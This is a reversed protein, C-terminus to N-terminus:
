RTDGDFRVTSEGVELRAAMRLAPGEADVESVSVSNPETELRARYSLRPWILRIIERVLPVCAAAAVLGGLIWVWLQLGDEDPLKPPISDNPNGGPPGALIEGDSVDVRVETGAAVRTGAVPSQTLVVGAPPAGPVKVTEVKFQGLKGQADALSLKVVDPVEIGSSVTLRVTDGRAVVDGGKPAQVIVTEPAREDESPTAEVVLGAREIEETAAGVAKGEVGPVVVRSGDSVGIEVASGGAVRTGPEPTQSIVEGRTAQSPVSREQVEFRVLGTRADGVTRGVVKPVPIGTSVSLKVASGRRAADGAKPEQRVVTDPASVHEEETPEALLGVQELAVRAADISGGEVGPVRVLSGDSVELVVEAGRPLRAPGAPRQDTIEGQPRESAVQTVDVAFPRLATRAAGLRQGVLNPLDILRAVAVWVTVGSGRAVESEAAPDQRLVTGAPQENPSEEVGMELGRDQLTAAAAELSQGKLNPVVVLTGDSVVFAIECFRGEIFTTTPERLIVRAPQSSAEETVQWQWLRSSLRPTVEDVNSGALPPLRACQGAPQVVQQAAELLAPNITKFETAAPPPVQAEALRAAALLALWVCGRTGRKAPTMEEGGLPM